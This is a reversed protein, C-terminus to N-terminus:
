TCNGHEEGNGMLTEGLSHTRIPQATVRLPQPSLLGRVYTLHKAM